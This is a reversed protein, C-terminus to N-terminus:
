CVNELINMQFINTLGIINVKPQFQQFRKRMVTLTMLHFDSLRTELGCTNQFSLPINTLILDICTPNDPNKYCTRQKILTKLNYNECFSYM